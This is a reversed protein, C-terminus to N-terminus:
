SKSENIKIVLNKYVELEIILKEDLNLYCKKIM